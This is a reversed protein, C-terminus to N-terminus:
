NLSVGWFVVLCFCTYHFAKFFYGLIARFDARSPQSFGLEAVKNWSRSKVKARVGLGVDDWFGIAGGGRRFTIDWGM